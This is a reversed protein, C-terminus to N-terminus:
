FKICKLTINSPQILNVPTGSSTNNGTNAPPTELFLNAGASFITAQNTVTSGNTLITSQGASLLNNAHTHVPIDNTGLVYSEATTTTNGVANGIVATGSGGAGMAVKRRFDPINFTTTGNGVGWTTGVAAFLAAYTARSVASGDCNLYGAPASTGGFDIITGPQVGQTNASIVQWTADAGPTATNSAVQNEYVKMGGGADYRVRAYIDYAYPTGLVTDAALIWDPTGETQYQQIALTVEYMLENFQNRPIPKAAPNTALDYEYNIPFGSQYSVTNATTPNPIALKDGDVAFPYAFFKAM